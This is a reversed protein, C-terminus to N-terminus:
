PYYNGVIAHFAYYCLSISPLPFRIMHEFLSTSSSKSLKIKWALLRFVKVVLFMPFSSIKSSFPPM